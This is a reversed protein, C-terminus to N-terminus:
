FPIETSTDYDKDLSTVEEEEEKKTINMMRMKYADVLILKILKEFAEINKLDVIIEKYEQVLILKEDIIEFGIAKDSNYRYGDKAPKQDLILRM